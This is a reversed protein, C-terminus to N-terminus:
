PKATREMWDPPSTIRGAGILFELAQVYAAEYGKGLRQHLAQRMPAPLSYYCKRCTSRGKDKSAGCRCTPSNLDFLALRKLDNESLPRAGTDSTASLNDVQM